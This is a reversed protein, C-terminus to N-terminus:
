LVKQAAQIFANSYDLGVVENFYKALDVTSRGVACGLDLARGQIGRKKAEQVCVDACAKPFNEIGFYSPGYHFVLYTDVM